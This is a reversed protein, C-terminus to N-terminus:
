LPINDACNVEQCNAMSSATDISFAFTQSQLNPYIINTGRRIISPDPVLGRGLCDFIQFRNFLIRVAGTDTVNPGVEHRKVMVKPSVVSGPRYHKPHTFVVKPRYFYNNV